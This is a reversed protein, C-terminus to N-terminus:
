YIHSSVIADDNQSGDDDHDDGGDSGYDKDSM